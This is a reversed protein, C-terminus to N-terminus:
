YSDALVTTSLMSLLPVIAYSNSFLTFKYSSGKVLTLVISCQGKLLLLSLLVKIM